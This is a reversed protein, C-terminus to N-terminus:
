ARKAKDITLTSKIFAAASLIDGNSLKNSSFLLEELNPITKASSSSSFLPTGTLFLVCPLAWTSRPPSMTKNKVLQSFVTGHGLNSLYQDAIEEDARPAFSQSKVVKYTAGDAGIMEEVPASPSAELLAKIEPGQQPASFLINDATVAPVGHVNNKKSLDVLPELVCAAIRKVIAVPLSGGSEARFSEVSSRLVHFVLALHKGKVSEEYFGPRLSPSLTSNPKSHVKSFIASTPPCPTRLLPWPIKIAEINDPDESDVALWTSSRPGWGLKRLITWRGNHLTGGPQGIFYGVPADLHEEPFSSM